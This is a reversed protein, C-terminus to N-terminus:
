IRRLIYLDGIVISSSIYFQRHQSSSTTIAITITIACNAADYYYDIHIYIQPIEKM